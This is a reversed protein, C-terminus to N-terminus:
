GIICTHALVTVYEELFIAPGLRFFNAKLTSYLTFCYNTTSIHEVTGKTICYQFANCDDRSSNVYRVRLARSLVNEVASKQAIVATNEM